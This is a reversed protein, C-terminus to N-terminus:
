PTARWPHDIIVRYFTTKTESQTSSLYRFSEANAVVINTVGSWASGMLEDAREVRYTRGTALPGLGIKIAEDCMHVVECINTPNEPDVDYYTTGEAFIDLAFTDTGLNPNTDTTFEYLNDTGDHDPDAPGLALPNDLGFNNVQWADDVQDGAYLGFNDLHTNLVQLTTQGSLGASTARAIANSHRYVPQGTVWGDGSELLPGAEVQWDTTFGESLLSGDDCRLRSALQFTQGEGISPAPSIVELQVPDVLAGCFDPKVWNGSASASLQAWGGVADDLTYRPTERSGGGAQTTSNPQVMGANACLGGGACLVALWVPHIRAKM